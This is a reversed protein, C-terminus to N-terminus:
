CVQAPKLLLTEIIKVFIGTQGLSFRLRGTQDNIGIFILVVFLKMLIFKNLKINASCINNNSIQIASFVAMTDSIEFHAYGM